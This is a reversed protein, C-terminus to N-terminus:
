LLAEIKPRISAPTARSDFRAVVNGERDVLFKEFNWQIEKQGLDNKKSATLYRYLVHADSGNVDVKAYMPFTVDYKTSCFEAIEKPSGPEQSGFQNCPFGLVALGKEGLERHLAELGEYQPTFGCKSAVNVILMVEGAHDGISANRGDLTQVDIDYLDSM